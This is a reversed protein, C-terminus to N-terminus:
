SSSNTNSAKVGKRYNKFAHFKNSFLRLQKKPGYSWHRGTRQSPEEKNDIDSGVDRHKVLGPWFGYGRDNRTLVKRCERDIPMYIKTRQALFEIAGKRSWMLGLMGQPFYHAHLIHSGSPLPGVWGLGRCLKSSRAGLHIVDWDVSHENFLEILRRVDKLLLPNVEIDDEFILGCCEGTDIFKQLAIIHSKYCGIEGGSLERGMAKLAASEDYENIEEPRINRGDFAPVRVFYVDAKSLELSASRFREESEDLNILFAPINMHGSNKAQYPEM